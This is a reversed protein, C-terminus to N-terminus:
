PALPSPTLPHPATPPFLADWLELTEAKRRAIDQEPTGGRSLHEHVLREFHAQLAEAEMATGELRGALFWNREPVASYADWERVSKHVLWLRDRALERFRAQIESGAIGHEQLLDPSQGRAYEFWTEAHHAAQEPAAGRVLVLFTFVAAELEQIRYFAHGILARATGFSATRNLEEREEPTRRAAHRGRVGGSFDYEERMEFGDEVDSSM